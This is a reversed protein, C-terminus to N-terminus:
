IFPKARIAPFRANYVINLINELSQAPFCNQRKFFFVRGFAVRNFLNFFTNFFHNCLSIFFSLFYFGTM